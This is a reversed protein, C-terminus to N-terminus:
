SPTGNRVAERNDNLSVVLRSIGVASSLLCKQIITPRAKILNSLLQLAYLRSYFDPSELCELLMLINEPDQYDTRLYTTPSVKIFSDQLKQLAIRVSPSQIDSDDESLSPLCVPHEEYMFVVLLTELAARLTEPDHFDRKVTITLAELAEKGM